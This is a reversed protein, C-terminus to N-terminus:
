AWRAADANECLRASLRHPMAAIAAESVPCPLQSSGSSIDAEYDYRQVSISRKKPSLKFAPVHLRMAKQVCVLYNISLYTLHRVM